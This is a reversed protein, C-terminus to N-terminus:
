LTLKTYIYYILLISYFQDRTTLKNNKVFEIASNISLSSEISIGLRYYKATDSKLLFKAMKTTFEDKFKLKCKFSDKMIVNVIGFAEERFEKQSKRWLQNFLNAVEHLYGYYVMIKSMFSIKTM